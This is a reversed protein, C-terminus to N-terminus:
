RIRGIVRDAEIQLEKSTAGLYKKANALVDDNDGLKEMMTISLIDKLHSDTNVVEEIYNFFVKLKDVEQNEILLQIVRPMLVDEIAVTELLEGYEEIINNYDMESDPFFEVMKNFFQKSMMLQIEMQKFLNIADELDNILADVVDLDNLRFRWRNSYILQM